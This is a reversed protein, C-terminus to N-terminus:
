VQHANLERLTRMVYKQYNAGSSRESGEVEGRPGGIDGFLYIYTFLVSLILLAKRGEKMPSSLLVQMKIVIQFLFLIMLLLTCIQIKQLHFASFKFQSEQSM